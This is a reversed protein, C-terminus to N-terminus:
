GLRALTQGLFEIITAVSSRSDAGSVEVAVVRGEHRAVASWLPVGSVSAGVAFAGPGFQDLKQHASGGRARSTREVRASVESYAAAPATTVTVIGDDHALVPDGIRWKPVRPKETANWTCTREAGNRTLVGDAVDLGLRDRVEATTFLECVAEPDRSRQKSAEETEEPAPEPEPRATTPDPGASPGVEGAGYTVDEGAACGTLAMSLAVTLLAAARRRTNLKM